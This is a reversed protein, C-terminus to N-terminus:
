ESVEMKLDMHMDMPQKKGASDVTMSTDSSLDIRSEIPMAQTLDLKQTGTASSDLTELHVKTGPPLSPSEIDQADATQTITVNLSLVDSKRDVVEYLTTQTVTM